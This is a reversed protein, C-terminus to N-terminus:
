INKVFKSNAVIVSNYKQTKARSLKNTNQQDKNTRGILYSEYLMNKIQEKLSEGSYDEEINFYDAIESQSSMNTHDITFDAVKECIIKINKSTPLMAGSIWKSLYSVDYGLERALSYNKEGSFYILKEIIKGFEMKTM